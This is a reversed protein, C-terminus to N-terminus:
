NSLMIFNSAKMNGTTVAAFLISGDLGGNVEARGDTVLWRVLETHENDVALELALKGNNQLENVDSYGNTVLFRVMEVHGRSAARGLMSFGKGDYENANAKMELLFKMIEVQNSGAALLLSNDHDANVLDLFAGAQVLNHVFKTRHYAVALLLPSWGGFSVVHNVNASARLLFDMLAQNGCEIAFCLATWGKNNTLEPNAGHELLWLAVQTRNSQIALQLVTWKEEDEPGNVDMKFTTVLWEVIELQGHTAAVALCSLKGRARVANHESVLYKVVNLRGHKVAHSVCYDGRKDAQDVKAKAEVLWKVVDIKGAKAAAALVSMGSSDQADVSVNAERVFWQVIPLVGASAALNIPSTGCAERTVSCAAKRVLFEVIHLHGNIAALTLPTDGEPTLGEISVNKSLCWEVVSLHGYKIATHFPTWGGFAEFSNGLWQLVKLHGSRAAIHAAHGRYEAFRDTPVFGTKVLWQVISLLGLGAACVLASKNSKPLPAFALSPQRALVEYLMGFDQREISQELLSPLSMAEDLILSSKAQKAHRKGPKHAAKTM